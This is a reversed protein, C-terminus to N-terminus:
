ISLVTAVRPVRFSSFVLKEQNVKASGYTRELDAKLKLRAKTGLRTFDPTERRTRFIVRITGTGDPIQFIDVAHLRLDKHRRRRCSGNPSELEAEVIAGVKVTADNEVRQFNPSSLFSVQPFM